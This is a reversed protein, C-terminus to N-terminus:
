RVKLANAHFRPAVGVKAAQRVFKRTGFCGTSLAVSYFAGLMFVDAHTALTLLQDNIVKAIGHLSRHTVNVQSLGTKAATM